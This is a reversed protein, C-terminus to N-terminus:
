YHWVYNHGGGIMIDNTSSAFKWKVYKKIPVGNKKMIQNYQKNNQREGKPHV